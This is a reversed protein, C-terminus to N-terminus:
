HSADPQDASNGQAVDPRASQLVVVLREIRQWTVFFPKGSGIRLHVTANPRSLWKKLVAQWNTVGDLPQAATAATAV